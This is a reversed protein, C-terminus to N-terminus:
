NHYDSDSLTSKMKYKPVGNGQLVELVKILDSYDADRSSNVIVGRSSYANNVNLWNSFQKNFENDLTSMDGDPSEKPNVNNICRVRGDGFIQITIDEIIDSEKTSVAPPLKITLTESEIFRTFGGFFSLLSLVYIVIGSIGIWKPTNNKIALVLGVISFVMAPFGIIAVLPAVGLYLVAICNGLEHSWVFVRINVFWILLFIATAMGFGLWSFVSTPKRNITHTTDTEM